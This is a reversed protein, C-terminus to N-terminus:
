GSSRLVSVGDATAIPSGSGSPVKGGATITLTTRVPQGSYLRGSDFLAKLAPDDRADVRVPIHHRELEVMVGSVTAAAYASDDRRLVVVGKGPRAAALVPTELRGLMRSQAAYPIPSRAAAVSAVIAAAAVGAVLVSGLVPAIANQRKRPVVSWLAWGVALWTVAGLADLWRLLYAYLPGVVHTVSVFAVAWSAVVVLLLNRASPARRWSLVLAVAIAVLALPLPTHTTDIEGSTVKIPGWHVLWNPRWSLERAIVHYAVSGSHGPHHERFFRILVGLNGPRHTLQDVVPPVWLAIGVALSVGLAVGLPRLGARGRLRLERGVLVALGVVGLMGVLPAYEVHAQVLFTGTAVFLPASWRDGEVLSWGLMIVLLCPLVTVYPNWPNRVASTGFTRVLLMTVLLAWLVLRRGGRRHAVYAIGVISAANLLLAGLTLGGSWEGAIRYPVALLYFELPGPHWWGFRSYAGVLVAHHGVDRVTLEFLALDGWPHYGGGRVIMNVASAVLPVLVVAVVLLGIWRGFGRRRPARRESRTRQPEPVTTIEAQM